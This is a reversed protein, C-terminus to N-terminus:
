FTGTAGVTGLGVYPTIRAATAPQSKPATLLLVLGGATAVGGVIFGITSINAVTHFNDVDSQTACGNSPCSSHASIALVGTVAGTALGAAGVGLAVWALTKRGSGPVGQDASAPQATGPAVTSASTQPESTSAPSASASASATRKLELSVSQDKGEGVTFQASAADFGEASARVVHSGPNVPRKVGLAGSPVPVDDITVTAHDSGTVQITAYARRGEVSGIEAKAEQVAKQIALTSGPPAGELIIRHYGEWAEVFKGLQAQAHALGYLLSPAHYLSEARKFLSEAQAWDKRDLAAYGQEGLDRAVGKDSESQAAALSSFGLAMGLTAAAIIRPRM